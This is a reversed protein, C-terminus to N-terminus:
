RALFGRVKTWVGALVFFALSLLGAGPTPGPAGALTVTLNTINASVYTDATQTDTINDYSFFDVSGNQQDGPQVTYSFPTTISAPLPFLTNPGIHNEAFNYTYVNGADYNYYDSEHYQEALCGYNCGVIEGIYGNLNSSVSIGNITVTTGLAPSPVGYASGGYAYNYTPSSYTIGLATNFVYTVQYSDGALSAGPTGFLGTQDHGYDVTGTYTVDVIAAQASSLGALLAVTAIAGLLSKLKANFLTPM